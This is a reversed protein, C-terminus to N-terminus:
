RDMWRDMWGDTRRGNTQTSHRRNINTACSADPPMRLNTLSTCRSLSVWNHSLPIDFLNVACGRIPLRRVVICVHVRGKRRQESARSLPSPFHSTRPSPSPSPPIAPLLRPLTRQEKIDTWRGGVANTVACLALTATTRTGHLAAARVGPPNEARHHEGFSRNLPDIRDDTKSRSKQSELKRQFQQLDIDRRKREDFECRPLETDTWDELTNKMSLLTTSRM